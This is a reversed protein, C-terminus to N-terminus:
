NENTILQTAQKTAVVAVVWFLNKLIIRRSKKNKMLKKM